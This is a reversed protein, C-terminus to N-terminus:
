RQPRITQAPEGAVTVPAAELRAHAGEIAARISTLEALLTARTEHATTLLEGAEARAREAWGGSEDRLRNSTQEADSLM